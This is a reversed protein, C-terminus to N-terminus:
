NRPTFVETLSCLLTEMLNSAAASVQSSASKMGTYWHAFFFTATAHLELNLVLDPPFPSINRCGLHNM